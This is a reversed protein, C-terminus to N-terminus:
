LPKEGMEMDHIKADAKLIGTKAGVKNVVSTSNASAFTVAERLSKGQAWACVFGSGFADGAGNRDVVKVDEYVGAKIYTRGDTAGVGKPGDSIVVVPVLKSGARALDELKEGAAISQMEEKNVILVEIFPLLQKLKERQKLEAKGPNWAVKIDLEKAQKFLKELIDVAGSLNSMYLWDVHGFDSLDFHASEYHTSAGRYTLVTREGNSALLIVSYGTNHKKSVTLRADIQERKLEQRVAEGAPDEGIAGMFISTQGQRAFTTAANTAGGGTSFNIQDVDAKGGMKLEAYFEGDAEKIPKLAESRSLYVDQVAAGISVFKM